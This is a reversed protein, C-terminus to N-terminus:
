CNKDVATRDRLCHPDDTSRQLDMLVKMAQKGHEENGKSFYFLNGFKIFINLEFNYVHIEHM